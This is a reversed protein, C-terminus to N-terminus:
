VRMWTGQLVGGTAEQSTAAQEELLGRTSSTAGMSIELCQFKRSVLLEEPMGQSRVEAGALMTSGQVLDQAQEQELEIASRAELVM